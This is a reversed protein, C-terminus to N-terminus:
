KNMNKNSKNMDVRVESFATRGMSDAALIRDGVNIESIPKSVGSELLLTESGAFCSSSSKEKNDSTMYSAIVPYPTPASVPKVASVVPVTISVYYGSTVLACNNVLVYRTGTKLCYYNDYATM